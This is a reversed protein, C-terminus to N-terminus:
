CGAGPHARQATEPSSKKEPMLARTAALLVCSEIQLGLILCALGPFHIFDSERCYYPLMLLNLLALPFQFLLSARIVGNDAKGRGIKVAVAAAFLLPGRALVDGGPHRGKLGEIVWLDRIHRSLAQEV